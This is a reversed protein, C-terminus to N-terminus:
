KLVNRIVDQVSGDRGLVVGVVKDGFPIPAPEGIIKRACDRLYQMDVLKMGAAKLREAIEPRRPNVVTGYETIVVDVSAGPTILTTVHDVICPIRGRLLPCVVISLASDAATDPHGGIAGRIIGDSGVLVNANFNVDVELASLIVIDLYHVASGPEMGSAYEYSAVEKHAPDNKVSEAAVKDFSQVDILREILGEEHLKVMHATIGGLAYSAKIGKEIMSERIFKVAALAAGGTGTQISFGDKFYGSNIIAKAALRALLIDRPNKSDRIAGSSIKSSDGVSDVVVVYDVDHESISNPTNPYPVLDDTLIVVKDAYRADPLAYGLSGCISKANESRSYGCANGLPDCSPAGLFAVDIHLEGSAVAAGRTGHSRFIVPEDMLGRSIQEALEGRVGSTTIKSIVGNKIHGVLPAHVDSLSSAALTLGKIGMEAIKDVVMNVIKDGGRFHHHFSITMGDKLGSKRIADELSVVKCSEKQLDRRFTPIKQGPGQYVKKGLKAAAERILQENTM